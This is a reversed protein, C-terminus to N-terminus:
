KKQYLPKVTDATPQNRKLSLIHFHCTPALFSPHLGLLSNPSIHPSNFLTCRLSQISKWLSTLLWLKSSPHTRHFYAFANINPGNLFSLSNEDSFRFPFLWTISAHAYLLWYRSLASHYIILSCYVPIHPSSLLGVETQPVVLSYLFSSNRAATTVFFQLMQSIICHMEICTRRFTLRSEVSYTANYELPCFEELCPIKRSSNFFGHSVEWSLLDGSQSKFGPGGSCSAPTSGLREHRETSQAPPPFTNLRMKCSYCTLIHMRRSWLQTDRYASNGIHNSYSRFWDLCAVTATDRFM